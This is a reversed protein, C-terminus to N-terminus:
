LTCHSCFLATFSTTLLLLLSNRKYVLCIYVLDPRCWAPMGARSLMTKYIIVVAAAGEVHWGPKHSWCYLGRHGVTHTCCLGPSPIWQAVWPLVSWGGLFPGTRLSNICYPLSAYIQACGEIEWLRLNHLGTRVSHVRMLSEAPKFARFSLETQRAALHKIEGLRCMKWEALCIDTEVFHYFVSWHITATLSAFSRSFHWFM